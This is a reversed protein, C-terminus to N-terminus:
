CRVSIVRSRGDPDLVPDPSCDIEHNFVSLQNTCGCAFSKLCEFQLDPLPGVDMLGVPIIELLMM